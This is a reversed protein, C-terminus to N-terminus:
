GGAWAPVLVFFFLFLVDQVIFLIPWLYDRWTKPEQMDKIIATKWDIKVIRGKIQMVAMNRKDLEEDITTIAVEAPDFTLSRRPHVCYALFRMYKPALRRGLWTPMTERYPVALVAPERSITAKLTDKEEFIERFSATNKLNEPCEYSLTGDAYVNAPVMVIDTGTFVLAANRAPFFKAPAFYEEAPKKTKDTSEKSMKQQEEQEAQWNKWDIKEKANKSATIEREVARAAKKKRNRRFM